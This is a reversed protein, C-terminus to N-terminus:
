TCSTPTKDVPGRQQKHLTVMWSTLKGASGSDPKGCIRCFIGHQFAFTEHPHSDALASTGLRQSRIGSSRFHLQHLLLLFLTSLLHLACSDDGFEGGVGLGYFFQRRHFWDRTGFFNPAVTDLYMSRGLVSAALILLPGPLQSELYWCCRSYTWSVEKLGQSM